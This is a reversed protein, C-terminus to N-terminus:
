MKAFIAIFLEPRLGFYVDGELDVELLRALWIAMDRLTWLRGFVAVMPLWTHLGM